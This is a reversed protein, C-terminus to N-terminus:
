QCPWRVRWSADEGRDAQSHRGLGSPDERGAQFLSQRPWGHPTRVRLRRQDDHWRAACGALPEPFRFRSGGIPPTQNTPSTSIPHDDHGPLPSKRVESDPHEVATAGTGGTDAPHDPRPQPQHGASARPCSPGPLSGPGTSPCTPLTSPRAAQRNREKLCSPSLLVLLVSPCPTESWTM